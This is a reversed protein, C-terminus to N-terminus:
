MPPPKIWMKNTIASTSNTKLTSVPRPARTYRDPCEPIERLRSVRGHLRFLGIADLPTGDNRVASRKRKETL